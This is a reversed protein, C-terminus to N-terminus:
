RKIMKSLFGFLYLFNTWMNISTKPDNKVCCLYVIVPEYKQIMRIVQKLFSSGYLNMFECETTVNNSSKHGVGFCKSFNGITKLTNKKDLCTASTTERERQLILNEIYELPFRLLHIWSRTAQQRSDFMYSFVVSQVARCVWVYFVIQVTM